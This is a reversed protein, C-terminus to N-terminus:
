RRIKPPCKRFILRPARSVPETPTSSPDPSVDTLRVCQPPQRPSKVCISVPGGVTMRWRQRSAERSQRRDHGDRERFIARQTQVRGPRRPYSRLFGNSTKCKTISSTQQNPLRSPINQDHFFGRSQISADTVPVNRPKRRPLPVSKTLFPQIELWKWLTRHGALLGGATTGEIEMPTVPSLFSSVRVPPRPQTAASPLSQTTSLRGFKPLFDSGHIVTTPGRGPFGGGLVNATCPSPVNV